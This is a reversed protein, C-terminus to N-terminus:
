YNKIRTPLYSCNLKTDHLRLIKMYTSQRPRQTKPQTKRIVPMTYEFQSKSERIKFNFYDNEYALKNDFGGDSSNSPSIIEMDSDYIDHSQRM